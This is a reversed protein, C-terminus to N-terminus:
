QSFLCLGVLTSLLLLLAAPKTNVKHCSPISFILSAPQFSGQANSEHNLGLPELPLEASTHNRFQLEPRSSIIPDVVATNKEGIQLVEIWLFDM